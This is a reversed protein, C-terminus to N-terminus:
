SIGGPNQPGITAGVTHTNVKGAQPKSSFTKGIVNTKKGLLVKRDASFIAVPQKDMAKKILGGILLSIFIIATM